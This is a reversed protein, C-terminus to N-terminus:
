AGGVAAKNCTQLLRLASLVPPRVVKRAAAREPRPEQLRVSILLPLHTGVSPQGVRAMINSAPKM